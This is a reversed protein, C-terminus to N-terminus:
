RPSRADAALVDDPDASGNLVQGIRAHLTTRRPTSIRQYAATRVLDHTFGYTGDPGTHVIGHRELEGLPEFLGTPDPEVAEALVAVDASRGLAALWPVLKATAEGVRGLRDGILADLRSSLTM